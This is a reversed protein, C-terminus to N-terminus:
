EHFIKKAPSGGTIGLNASYVIIGMALTMIFPPVRLYAVGVGNATGILATAAVAAPAGWLLATPSSGLCAFLMVGGVSMMAAVSLDLGGILVVMQQGFAVVMVMSSLVLIALAQNWTGFAPTVIRSALILAASIAYLIFATRLEGILWHGGRREVWRPPAAADPPLKPRMDPTGTM